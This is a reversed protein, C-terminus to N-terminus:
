SPLATELPLGAQRALPMFDALGNFYTQIMGNNIVKMALGAALPGVHYIRGSIASLSDRARAAAGQEGGIFIGCNGALVLGPGGSIPADVATAGLAEIREIRAKLLDPVVTSADIIQKGTLDLALLADLVDAVAADDLLSLIM